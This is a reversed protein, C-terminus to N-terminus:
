VKGNILTQNYAFRLKAERLLEDYTSIKIQGQNCKKLWRWEEISIEPQNGVVLRLEPHYYNIGQEAFKRKVSDQQLIRNYNKIQELSSYIESIFVPIDRYTRTTKIAKKLEVLEWDREIANRIFLDIKRNKGNFDFEPHRLWIQSEIRDYNSGFIDRYYKKLFAELTLENTNNNLLDEFEKLVESKPSDNIWVPECPTASFDLIGSSLHRQGQFHDASIKGEAFSISLQNKTSGLIKNLANRSEKEEGSVNISPLGVSTHLFWFRFPDVAGVVMNSLYTAINIGDEITLTKSTNSIFQINPMLFEGNKGKKGLHQNLRNLSLKIYEKIIKKEREFLNNDTRLSEFLDLHENLPVVISYHNESLNQEIFPESCYNRFQFEFVDRGLKELPHFDVKDCDALRQRLLERYFQLYSARDLSLIINKLLENDM